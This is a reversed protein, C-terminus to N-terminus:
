KKLVIFYMAAGGVVGLIGLIIAVIAGTSLGTDETDVVEDLVTVTATVSQEVDPNAEVGEPLEFTGTATYDGATTGDYDAITWTLMVTHEIGESDEITTSTALVNIANQLTTGFAVEVDAVGAVTELTVEDISDDEVTIVASVELPTEPDTQVVGEPLEFVGTAIYTGAASANYDAITWALTVDYTTNDEDTITITTPLMGIVNAETTGLDVTVNAVDNNVDIQNIEKTPNYLQVESLTTELAPLTDVYGMFGTEQIYLMGEGWDGFFLGYGEMQVDLGSAELDIIYTQYEETLAPIPEGDIGVLHGANFFRTDETPITHMRFSELTTGASGKMTIYLFPLPEDVNNPYAATRYYAHQNDTADLVLAGDEIFTNGTDFWYNPYDAPDPAVDTRDFDEFVVSNEEDLAKEQSNAYFIQDIYLQGEGSYFLDFGSITETLGTEAINIILYLYDGSTYPYDEVGFHPTQLGAGSYLESHGWKVDSRNDNVDISAIRFTNLSAGNEGRVKFVVYEYDGNNQRAFSTSTYQMHTTAADADFVLENDFVDMYDIGAYGIIFNFGHDLAVPNNPDYAPTAGLTDREFNDFVVIDNPDLTVYETDVVEIEEEMNTFYVADLYVFDSEPELTDVRFGIVDKDWNNEEFNVVYGMFNTTLTPLLQADPGLLESFLIATGYVNSGADDYIPTIELDEAGQMGRLRLVVNDYALDENNMTASTAEYSSVATSGDLALHKGIIYGVSDRWWVNPGGANVAEREFADLLFYSPSDTYSPNVDNTYYIMDINLVGEGVSDGDQYLHLGQMQNGAPVVDGSTNHIYEKDALSGILDIVYLQYDETLAPMPEYDPDLLENFPVHILSHNDDLRFALVLDDISAGEFGRMEFVLFSFQGDANGSSGVKYLASDATTPTSASYRARLHYDTIYAGTGLASAYDLESGSVGAVTSRDFNDFLRDYTANYARGLYNEAEDRVPAEQTDAWAIMGQSSGVIIALTLVLLVKKFVRM